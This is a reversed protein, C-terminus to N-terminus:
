ARTGQARWTGPPGTTIRATAGIGGEDVDLTVTRAVDFGLQLHTSAIVMGGAALHRNVRVSFREVQGTDLSVTAEDLLWIPRPAVILRALATRRRQGASLYRAPIDRLSQLQFGDLAQDLRSSDAGGDWFVQWFSLNEAVTLDADIANAHAVYHAMEGLRADDDAGELEITGGALPLLGALARILTTKGAGNPGALILAEGRGLSFSAEEVVRIGGRDVQIGDVKLAALARM